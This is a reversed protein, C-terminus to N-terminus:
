DRGSTQIAQGPPVCGGTKSCRRRHFVPRWTSVRSSCWTWAVTTSCRRRTLRSRSIISHSIRRERLSDSCRRICWSYARYGTIGILFSRREVAPDFSPRRAVAQEISAIVQGLPEVLEHSLTTLRYERGIRVLLEDDFLQRR